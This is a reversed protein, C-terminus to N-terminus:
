LNYHDGATLWASTLQETCIEARKDHLMCNRNAKVLGHLIIIQVWFPNWIVKVCVFVCVTEEGFHATLNIVAM